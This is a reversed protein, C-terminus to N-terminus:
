INPGVDNKKTNPGQKSLGVIGDITSKRRNNSQKPVDSNTPNGIVEETFNTWFSNEQNDLSELRSYKSYDRMAEDSWSNENQIEDVVNISKDVSELNLSPSVCGAGITM